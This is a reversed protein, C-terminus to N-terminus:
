RAHLGRGAAASGARRDVVFHFTTGLYVIESDAVLKPDMAGVLDARALDLLQDRNAIVLWRKFRDYSLDPLRGDREIREWLASVFVKETGFRGDSGIRPIIERVLSLLADASMVSTTAPPAPAAPPPSPSPATRPTAPATSTPSPAGPARTQAVATPAPAAQPLTPAARPSSPPAPVPAPAAPVSIAPAAVVATLPLAPQLPTARPPTATAHDAPPATVTYLWRRSLASCMSRKDWTRPPQASTQPSPGADVLTAGALQVRLESPTGKAQPGVCRSLVHARISGITVPGPPMGLAERILADSVATPKAREPLKYRARLVALAITNSNKLASTAVDSGPRLGLARAPLHATRVESWSPTDALEFAARLAREGNATLANRRDTVLGRRRLEALTDAALKPALDPLADASALETLAEALAKPSPPKACSLRALVILAFRSLSHDV